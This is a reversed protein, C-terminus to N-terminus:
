PRMFLQQPRRPAGSLPAPSRVSGQLRYRSEIAKRFWAPGDDLVIAAFRGADLDSRIQQDLAAGAGDWDAWLVDTLAWGSALEPHGALTAYYGHDMILVPAPLQRVAEVFAAGDAKHQGTPIYPRPDFLLLGLQVVAVGARGTTWGRRPDLFKGFLIAAAVCAPMLANQWAGGELRAIWSSLIFGSALALSTWERRVAAAILGVAIAPALPGGLLDATWFTLLRQPDASVRMRLRPLEFIYYSSWGVTSWHLALLTGGAVLLASALVIAAARRQQWVLVLVFPAFAVLASQKTLIALGIIVGVATWQSPHEARVALMWGTALLAASLADVRGLDFWGDTLSYSGAYVAAAVMGAWGGSTRYVTLAIVAITLLSAGVSVIRLPLFGPGLIENLPLAAYYFLPPYGFPVFEISPAAYLPLGEAVRMVHVVTAGELWELEYPYTVRLAAATGLAVFIALSIVVAGWRLLTLGM